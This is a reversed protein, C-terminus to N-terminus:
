QFPPSKATETPTGSAAFRVDGGEYRKWATSSPCGAAIDQLLDNRVLAIVPRALEAAIQLRTVVRDSIM